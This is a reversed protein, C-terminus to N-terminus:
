RKHPGFKQLCRRWFSRTTLFHLRAATGFASHTLAAFGATATPTLLGGLDRRRVSRVSGDFYHSSHVTTTIGSAIQKLCSYLTDFYPDAHASSSQPGDTEDKRPSMDLIRTELPQDAYGMQFTTLGRGHSHGNVFGPIVLYSADGIMRAKPYRLELEKYSGVAVIKGDLECLAGNELIEESQGWRRVLLGGYILTPRSSMEPRGSGIEAPSTM